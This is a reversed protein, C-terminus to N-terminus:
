KGLEGAIDGLRIGPHTVAPGIDPCEHKICCTRCDGAREAEDAMNRSLSRRKLTEDPNDVSNRSMYRCSAFSRDLWSGEVAEIFMGARLQIKGIRKLM